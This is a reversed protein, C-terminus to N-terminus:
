IRILVDLNDAAPENCPVAGFQRALARTKPSFYVIVECHLRGESEHRMYVARDDATVRDACMTTFQAKIAELTEGALMADGLNLSHWSQKL